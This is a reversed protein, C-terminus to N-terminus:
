KKPIPGPPPPMENSELIAAGKALLLYKEVLVKGGTVAKTNEVAAGFAEDAAKLGAFQGMLTTSPLRHLIQRGDVVDTPCWTTWGLNGAETLFAAHPNPVTKKLDYTVVYWAM